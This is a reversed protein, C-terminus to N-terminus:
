LIAVYMSDYTTLYVETPKNCLHQPNNKVEFLYKNESTSQSAKFYHNDSKLM